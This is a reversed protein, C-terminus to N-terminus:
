IQFLSNPEKRSLNSLAEGNDPFNPVPMHMISQQITCVPLSM